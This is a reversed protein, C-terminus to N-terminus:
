NFNCLFANRTSESAFFDDFIISNFTTITMLIIVDNGYNVNTPSFFTAEQLTVGQLKADNSVQLHLEVIERERCCKWLATFKAGLLLSIRPKLLRTHLPVAAHSGRWRTHRNIHRWRQSDDSNSASYLSFAIFFVSNTEIENRKAKLNKNDYFLWLSSTLHIHITYLSFSAIFINFTSFAM